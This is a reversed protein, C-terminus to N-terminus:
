HRTESEASDEIPWQHFVYVEDDVLARDFYEPDPAGDRDLQEPEDEVAIVQWDQARVYAAAHQVPDDALSPKLYCVVFAGGALDFDPSAPLPRAELTFVWLRQDAPYIHTVQM